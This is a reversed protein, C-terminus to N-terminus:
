SKLVMDNNPNAFKLIIVADCCRHNQCFDHAATTSRFNLAARADLSWGGSKNLFMGTALSKLLIKM